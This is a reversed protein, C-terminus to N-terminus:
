ITRGRQSTVGKRRPLSSLLSLSVFALPELYSKNLMALIDVCATDLLQAGIPSTDPTPLFVAVHLSTAPAM